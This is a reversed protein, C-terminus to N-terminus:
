SKYALTIVNKEVPSLMKEPEWRGKMDIEITPIFNSVTFGIWFTFPTKFQRQFSNYIKEVKEITKLM